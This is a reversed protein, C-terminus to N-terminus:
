GSARQLALSVTAAYSRRPSGPPLRSTRATHTTLAETALERVTRWRAGVSVAPSSEAPAPDDPSRPADAAREADRAETRADRLRRYLSSPSPDERLDTGAPAEESIPALLAELDFGEPFEEM